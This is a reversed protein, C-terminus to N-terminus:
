SILKTQLGRFFDQESRHFRRLKQGVVPTRGHCPVGNEPEPDLVIFQVRRNQARGSPTANTALPCREGYGVAHSRDAKVGRQVLYGVVTEMRRQSLETNNGASGEASTHGQVEVRGIQQYRLLNAAVEDLLTLSTPQLADSDVTFHVADLLVVEEATTEVEPAKLVFTVVQFPADPEGSFEIEQTALGYESNEIVLSWRGPALELVAQGDPGVTGAARDEAGRFTVEATVPNGQKDIVVVKFTGPRYKFAWEVEM